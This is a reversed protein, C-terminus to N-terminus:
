FIDSVTKVQAINSKEFNITENEIELGLLDETYSKLIGEYQKQKNIPKFLKIRIKNGLQQKFHETKRLIRELGPSSVELFYADGIFDVEDLIDNIGNNVKECDDISIGDNKDIIIRLYYDNGEKVYQVDYLTYDLKEIIPKVLVEVKSEINKNQKM